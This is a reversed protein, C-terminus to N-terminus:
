KVTKAWLKKAHELAGAPWKNAVPDPKYKGGAFEKEGVQVRNEGRLIYKDGGELVLLKVTDPSVDGKCSARYAFSLEGEGDGDVDTVTVSGELIALTFDVECAEVADRVKRVPSSAKQAGPTEVGVDVALSSSSAKSKGNMQGQLVIKFRAVNLGNKDTWTVTREYPKDGDSKEVDSELKVPAAAFALGSSLLVCAAPILRRM